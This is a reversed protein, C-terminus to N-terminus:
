WFKLTLERRLGAFAKDLKQNKVNKEVYEESQKEYHSIM